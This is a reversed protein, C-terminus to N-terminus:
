RSPLRTRPSGPRSWSACASGSAMRERPRRGSGVPYGAQHLVSRAKAVDYPHDPADPDYYSFNPVVVSKVPYPYGGLARCIATKNIAYAIAQRVALDQLVPTRFNFTLYQWSLIRNQIIRMDPMAAIQPAQPYPVTYAFQIEGAKLQTIMATQDPMPKFIIRDLYPLQNGAEDKRWYNPNRDALIYQGRKFETVMFPGTGVPKDAWPDTNLSKGKLIHEPLIGVSFLTSPFTPTVTHYNVVATLPDPTDISDIDQTGDKSEGIFKPDRIAEWTFRIDASTLPAGDHWKVGPRLHYTITM